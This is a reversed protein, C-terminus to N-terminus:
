GNWTRRMNREVLVERAADRVLPVAVAGAQGVEVQIRENRVIRHGVAADEGPMVHALIRVGELAEGRERRYAPARCSGCWM